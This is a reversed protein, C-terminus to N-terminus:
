YEVPIRTARTGSLRALLVGVLSGKINTRFGVRGIRIARIGVLLVIWGM